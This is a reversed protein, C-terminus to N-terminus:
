PKVLRVISGSVITTGVTSGYNSWYVYKGDVAVSLPAAISPLAPTDPNRAVITPMEGAKPSKSIRSVTNDRFSAFYVYGGAGPDVALERSDSLGSALTVKPSQGDKPRKEISSDRLSSTTGANTWYVTENDLALGRPRALSEALTTITAPLPAAKAAYVVSGTGPTLGGENTWYINTADVVVSNPKQAAAVLEPVASPAVRDIRYIGQVFKSTTDPVDYMAFYVYNTTADVAIGRTRGGVIALARPPVSTSPDKPARGVVNPAPAAATGAQTTYFVEDGAVSIGWANPQAAAVVIVPPGDLRVKSVSGGGSSGYNTWYVWAGDFVLQGPNSQNAALTFPQCAGAICAGGDCKKGCRGCNNEDSQANVECGVSNVDGGCHVFGAKCRGFTCAGGGGDLAMDVGSASTAPSGADALGGSGCQALANPFACECGNEANGDCNQPGLECAVVSPTKCEGAVCAAVAGNISKCAKNCEGCNRSDTSLNTECGDGPNANCSAFGDSCPGASCQGFEDCTLAGTNAFACPVCTSASCGVLPDSNRRCVGDCSKENVGCRGYDDIGQTLTCSVVLAFALLGFAFGAGVLKRSSAMKSCLM